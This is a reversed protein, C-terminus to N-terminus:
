RVQMAQKGGWSKGFLILEKHRGGFYGKMISERLLTQVNDDTFGGYFLAPTTNPNSHFNIIIVYHGKKHLADAVPVWEDVQSTCLLLIRCIDNDGLNERKYIMLMMGMILVCLSVLKANIGPLCVVPPAENVGESGNKKKLGSKEPDFVRIYIDGWETPIKRIDGPLTDSMHRSTAGLDMKNRFFVRYTFFMLVLLLLAAEGPRVVQGFVQFQKSM